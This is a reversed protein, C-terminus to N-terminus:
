PGVDGRWFTSDEAMFNGTALVLDEVVAVLRCGGSNTWVTVTAKRGVLEALPTDNFFVPVDDSRQGSPLNASTKVTAYTATKDVKDKVSVHAGLKIIGPLSLETTLGVRVFLFGQFGRTIPLPDGPSLTTPLDNTAIGFLVGPNDCRGIVDAVDTNTDAPDVPPPTPESCAVLGLALVALTATLATDRASVGIQLWLRPHIM